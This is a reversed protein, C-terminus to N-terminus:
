NRKSIKGNRNFQRRIFLFDVYSTPIRQKGRREVHIRYAKNRERIFGREFSDIDILRKTSVISFTNPEDLYSIFAFEDVKKARQDMRYQKAYDNCNM